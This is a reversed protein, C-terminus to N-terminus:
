NDRIGTELKEPLTLTNTEISAVPFSCYDASYYGAPRHNGSLGCGGFPLKGSAGTTQRNWNVIGARIKHIFKQYDNANDSFLGASLGYRTNNALEIAEDLSGVSQVTMMPGFVEEDELDNADQVDILGPTLLAPNGNLAKMESIARGGKNLIAHYADLIHQGAVPNVVPGYFPEPASEPVGVQIRNIMTRLRGLFADTDLCDSVLILRRACTCRQGSTLYASLITQYAAADLDACTGVVLPNNGGMELALIKQPYDGYLRHLARGVHGSGTFLLGDCALPNSAAIGVDRAGQVLNLVGPPLGAEDWAQVMWAGVAPTQESPKFVITNGALLAPVIHGNPLHAPFNFPGLVSLVGFPKFRTVAQMGSMEFRSESRRTNMADISVAVKGVVTAAETKAEWRTKGMEDSILHALEDARCKVIEAYRQCIEIRNEISRDWWPGFAERGAAFAQTVQESNAETGSWVLEGNAPNVSQFKPGLGDVWEGAIFQGSHVNSM